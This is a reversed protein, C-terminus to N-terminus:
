PLCSCMHAAAIPLQGEVDVRTFNSERISISSDYGRTVLSLSSYKLPMALLTLLHVQLSLM